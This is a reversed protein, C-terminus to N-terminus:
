RKRSRRSKAVPATDLEIGFIESLGEELIRGSPRSTAKKLIGANEAQGILETHDARRLVFLLEPKEDLRAGVGYLAAAVHKCM